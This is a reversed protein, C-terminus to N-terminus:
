PSSAHRGGPDHAAPRYLEECVIPIMDDLARRVGGTFAILLRTTGGADARAESM